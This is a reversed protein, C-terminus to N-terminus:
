PYPVEGPPPIGRIVVIIIIVVAVIGAVIVIKGLLSLGKWWSAISAM